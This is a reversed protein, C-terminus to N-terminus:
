ARARTHGRKKPVRIGITRRDAHLMKPVERTAPLIFCYPGPVLRRLTHYQANDVVAFRAIDSLDACMLALHQTRPMRRMEYLADVAKKNYPDCGLAYVTDTPYAIIHGARVADAARKIKRPEPHEAYVEVLM